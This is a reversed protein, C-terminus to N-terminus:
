YNYPKKMPILYNREDCLGDDGEEIEDPLPEYLKYIISYPYDSYTENDEKRNLILSRGNKGYRMYTYLDQPDETIVYWNPFKMELTLNMGSIDNM